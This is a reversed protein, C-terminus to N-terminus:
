ANIDIVIRGQVKGNLIKNAYDPAEELKALTLIKKLHDKPMLAALRNWCINRTATPCLVSDVGILKVGRLLFPLVTGSLQSGGALGIAAVSGGYTTQALVRALMVGGVSDIVASWLEKELPRKSPENLTERLIVENAGISKLYDSSEAKGTVATVKYGLKSLLIVAISGVGGSAGTVLVPKTANQPTLGQEELKHIALMSTFGATGITMAELQTLGKALPVLWSGSVRALGSMGGKYFEGVRWGTLVVEDGEKYDSHHSKLVKGTFDVGPIHPYSRVLKGIGNIVMGDKYNITSYNVKILVDDSVEDPSPLDDATIEQFSHTVKGNEDENLILAKAM